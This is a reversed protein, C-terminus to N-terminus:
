KAVDTGPAPAQEPGAPFSICPIRPDANRGAHFAIENIRVDKVARLTEERRCSGGIGPYLTAPGPVFDFLSIDAYIRDGDRRLLATGLFQRPDRSYDNTVWVETDPFSVDNAEIVDGVDDAVGDAILVLVNKLVRATV